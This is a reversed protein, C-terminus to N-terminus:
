LRRFVTDREDACVVGIRGTIYSLNEACSPLLCGSSVAIMVPLSKTDRPQVGDLTIQSGVVECQVFCEVQGLVTRQPPQHRRIASRVGLPAHRFLLPFLLLSASAALRYKAENVRSDVHCQRCKSSLATSRRTSRRRQQQAGAATSRCIRGVRGASLLLSVARRQEQRIIPCVSPRVCPCFSCGSLDVYVRSRM